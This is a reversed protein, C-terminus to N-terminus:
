LVKATPAAQEEPRELRPGSPIGLVPFVVGVARRGVSEDGGADGAFGRGVRARAEDRHGTVVGGHRFGWALDRHEIDPVAEVIDFALVHQDALLFVCESGGQGQWGEEKQSPPVASALPVGVPALEKYVDPGKLPQSMSFSDLSVPKRR